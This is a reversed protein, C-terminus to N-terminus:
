DENPARLDDSTHPNSIAMVSKWIQVTHIVICARGAILLALPYAFVSGPTTLRTVVSKCLLPNRKILLCLELYRPDAAVSKAAARSQKKSEALLLHRAAMPSATASAAAAADGHRTDM